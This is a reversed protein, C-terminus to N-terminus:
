GPVADAIDVIKQSRQRGAVAIAFGAILVGALIDVVYHWDLLIIAVILVADYAALIAVMRKWQRLFWMVILPQTIHMCPFAIYYDASIHRIHAHNWLAQANAISIKQIAYTNLLPLSQSFHRPSLFYPGQSPWLFFLALALYYATLITGVFRLASRSGQYVACLILGAGIQAFMGFYIFELFRFFSSPLVAEASRCIAPVSVGHLLWKDANNFALDFQAFYRVSLIVDNYAFVLLFGIFLYVAPPLVDAAATRLAAMGQRERFELLVLVDVLIILGKVWTTAWTLLLFFLLLFAIRLPNQQLRQAFPQLTHRVPLALLYLLTAVFISQAALTLWYASGLRVWDFKLPLGFHKLLPVLVLALSLSAAYHFTRFWGNAQM